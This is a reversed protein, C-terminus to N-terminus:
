CNGGVGFAVLRRDKFIFDRENTCDVGNSQVVVADYGCRRLIKPNKIGASAAARAISDGLRVGKDTRLSRLDTGSVERPPANVNSLLYEERSEGSRHDFLAVRHAADYEVRLSDSGASEITAAFLVDGDNMADVNHALNIKSPDFPVVTDGIGSLFWPFCTNVPQGALWQALSPKAARAPLTSCCVLSVSVVVALALTRVRPSRNV